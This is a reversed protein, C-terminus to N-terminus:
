QSVTLSGQGTFDQCYHYRHQPGSHSWAERFVRLVKPQTPGAHLPSTAKKKSQAAQKPLDVSLM